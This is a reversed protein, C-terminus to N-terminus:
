PHKSQGLDEWSSFGEPKPDHNNQIYKQVRADIAETIRSACQIMNEFKKRESEQDQYWSTKTPFYELVTDRVNSSM